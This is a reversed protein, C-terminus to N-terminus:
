YKIKVHDKIKGDLETDFVVNIHKGMYINKLIDVYKKLEKEIEDETRSGYNAIQDRHIQTRFRGQDCEVIFLVSKAEKIYSADLLKGKVQKPETM